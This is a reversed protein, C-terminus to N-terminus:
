PQLDRPPTQRTRRYSELEAAPAPRAPAGADQAVGDGAKDAVDRAKLCREIALAFPRVDGEPIPILIEDAGVEKRFAALRKSNDGSQKAPRYRWVLGGTECSSLMVNSSGKLRRNIFIRQRHIEPDTEISVFFDSTDAATVKFTAVEAHERVWNFDRAADGTLETVASDSTTLARLGITLRTATDETLM